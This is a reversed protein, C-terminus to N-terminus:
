QDAMRAFDCVAGAEAGLDVESRDLQQGADPLEHLVAVDRTTRAGIELQRRRVGVEAGAEVLRVPEQRAIRLRRAAQKHGERRLPRGGEWPGHDAAEAGTGGPGEQYVSATTVCM